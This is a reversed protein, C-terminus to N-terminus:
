PAPAYLSHIANIMQTQLRPSRPDFDPHVNLSSPTQSGSSMQDNVRPSRLDLDPPLNLSSQTELDSVIQSDPKWSQIDFCPPLALSSPSPPYIAGSEHLPDKSSFTSQGLLETSIPDPFAQCEPNELTSIPEVNVSSLGNRHKSDSTHSCSLIAITASMSYGLGTNSPSVSGDM